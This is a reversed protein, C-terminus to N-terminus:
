AAIGDFPHAARLLQPASTREWTGAPRRVQISFDSPEDQDNALDGTVRLAESITEEPIDAGARVADLVYRAQGPTM